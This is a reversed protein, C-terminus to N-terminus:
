RSVPSALASSTQHDSTRSGAKPGTVGNAKASPGKGALPQAPPAQAHLYANAINHVFLADTKQDRKWKDGLRQFYPDDTIRGLAYMQQVMFQMYLGIVTDVRNLKSYVNWYGLDYWSMNKKVAAVGSRFLALAKRSNTVRYYDWIGFLAWIDGNLVHGSKASLNQNPYEEFWTGQDSTLVGGRSVPTALWRYAAKAARLYKRNGTYQYARLLASVALSQTLASIWPTRTIGFAPVTTRTWEIKGDVARAIFGNAIKIVARAYARDKSFQYADWNSLACLGHLTEDHPLRKIAQTCDFLILDRVSTLSHTMYYYSLRRSKVDIPQAFYDERRDSPPAFKALYNELIVDGGNNVIFQRVAAERAPLDATDAAPLTQEAIARYIWDPTGAVASMTSALLAAFAITGAAWQKM